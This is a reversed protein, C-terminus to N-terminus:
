SLISALSGFINALLEDEEEESVDSVQEQDGGSGYYQPLSPPPPPPPPPPLDDDLFDPLEQRSLPVQWTHSNEAHQQTSSPKAKEKRPGAKRTRRKKKRELTPTRMKKLISDPLSANNTVRPPRRADSMDHSSTDLSSSTGSLHVPRRPSATAIGGSPLTEEKSSARAPTQPAPFPPSLRGYRHKASPPPSDFGKLSHPEAKAANGKAPSEPTGSSRVSTPGQSQTRGVVSTSPQKPPSQPEPPPQDQTDKRKSAGEEEGVKLSADASASVSSSGGRVIGWEAERVRVISNLDETDLSRSMPAKGIPSPEYPPSATLRFNEGSSALPSVPDKLRSPSSGLPSLTEAAASQQKRPPTGPIPSHHQVTFSGRTAEESEEAANGMGDGGADADTVWSTSITTLPPGMGKGPSTIHWPHTPSVAGSGAADTLSLEYTANLSNIPDDTDEAENSSDSSQTPAISGSLYGSDQARFSHQTRRQTSPTDVPLSAATPQQWKPELSQAPRAEVDRGRQTPTERSGRGTTLENGMPPAKTSRVTETAAVAKTARATTAAKLSDAGEPQQKVAATTSKHTTRSHSAAEASWTPTTSARSPADEVSSGKPPSPTDAPHTQAQPNSSTEKASKKAYSPETTNTQLASPATTSPPKAVSWDIVVAPGALVKSLLPSDSNPAEFPHQPGEDSGWDEELIWKESTSWPLTSPEPEVSSSDHVDEIPGLGARSGGLRKESASPSFLRKAVRPPDDTPLDIGQEQQLLARIRHIALM